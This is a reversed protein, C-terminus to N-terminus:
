LLQDLLQAVVVSHYLARGFLFLPRHFDDQHGSTDLMM